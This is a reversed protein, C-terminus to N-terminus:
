GAEAHFAAQFAAEALTGHPHAAFVPGTGDTLLLSVAAVVRVPPGPEARLAAVLRLLEPQAARVEARQVPVASTQGRSPAVAEILVNELGDALRHRVRWGRLVEARRELEPRAHASRGTVLERDLELRGTLARVRAVLSRSRPVHLDAHAAM